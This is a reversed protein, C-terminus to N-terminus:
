WPNLTIHNHDPLNNLAIQILDYMYWVLLGILYLCNFCHLYIIGDNKEGLVIALCCLLCMGVIMYSLKFIGLEIDGLYFRDAGVTGLFFSLLFATLQNKRKYICYNHKYTSYEDTCVCTNTDPNCTGHFNCTIQTCNNNIEILETSNIIKVLSAFTLDTKVNLANVSVILMCFIFIKM